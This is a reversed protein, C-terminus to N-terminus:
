YMIGVVQLYVGADQPLWVIPNPFHAVAVIYVKSINLINEIRNESSKLPLPPLNIWKSGRLILLSIQLRDKLCDQM